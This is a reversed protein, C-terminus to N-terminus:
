ECKCYKNEDHISKGLYICEDKYTIKPLLYEKGDITVTVYSMVECMNTIAQPVTYGIGKFPLKSLSVTVTELDPNIWGSITIEQIKSFMKLLDLLEM